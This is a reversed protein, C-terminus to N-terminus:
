GEPKQVPRRDPQAPAVAEPADGSGNGSKTVTVDPYKAMFAEGLAPLGEGDLHFWEAHPRREIRHDSRLPLRKADDGAANDAAQSSPTESQGEVASSCGVFAMSTCMMALVMLISLVKKM